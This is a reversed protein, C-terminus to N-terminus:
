QTTLTYLFVASQCRWKIGLSGQSLPSRTVDNGRIRHSQRRTFHTPWLDRVRDLDRSWQEGASPTDRTAHRDYCCGISHRCIPVNRVYCRCCHSRQKVLKIQCLEVSIIQFIISNRCSVIFDSVSSTFQSFSSSDLAPRKLETWM